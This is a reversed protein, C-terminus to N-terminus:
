VVSLLRSEVWTWQSPFVTRCIRRSNSFLVSRSILSCQFCLSTRSAVARPLSRAAMQAGAPRDRSRRGWSSACMGCVSSSKRAVAAICSARTSLVFGTEGSGCQSSYAPLPATETLGQPMHPWPHERPLIQTAGHCHGPQQSALVAAM